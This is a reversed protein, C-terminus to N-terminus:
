KILLILFSFDAVGNSM